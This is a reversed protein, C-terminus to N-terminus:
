KELSSRGRDLASDVGRSPQTHSVVLRTIKFEFGGSASADIIRVRLSCSPPIAVIRVVFEYLSDISEKRSGEHANILQEGCTCGDFCTLNAVGQREYSVLHRLAVKIEGLPVDIGVGLFSSNTAHSNAREFSQHFPLIQLELEAGASTAKLGPKNARVSQTEKKVYQWGKNYKVNPALGGEVDILHADPGALTPDGELRRKDFTFCVLSEETDQSPSISLPPVLPHAM